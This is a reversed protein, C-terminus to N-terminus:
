DFPLYEKIFSIHHGTGFEPFKENPYLLKWYFYNIYTFCEHFKEFTKQKIAFKKYTKSKDWVNYSEHNTHNHLLFYDKDPSHLRFKEEGVTEESERITYLVYSEKPVEKQQWEPLDKRGLLENKWVIFEIYEEYDQRLFISWNGISSTEFRAVGRKKLREIIYDVAEWSEIDYWEGHWLKDQFHRQCDHEIFEADSPSCAQSFRLRVPIASHTKYHSMRRQINKDFGIKTPGAMEKFHSKNKLDVRGDKSKKVKSHYEDREIVYVYSCDEIPGGKKATAM